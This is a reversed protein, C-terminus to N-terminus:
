IGLELIEPNKQSGEDIIYKGEKGGVFMSGGLRSAYVAGM